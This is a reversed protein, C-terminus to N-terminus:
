GVACLDDVNCKIVLLFYFTQVIFRCFLENWKRYRYFYTKVNIVKATKRLDKRNKLIGNTINDRKSNNNAM